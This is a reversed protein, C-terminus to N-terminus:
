HQDLEVVSPSRRPLFLLTGSALLMAVSAFAMSTPLGMTEWLMSAAMAGVVVGLQSIANVVGFTRGRRADPSVDTLLAFWAANYSTM